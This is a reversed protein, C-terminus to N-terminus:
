DGNVFQRPNISMVTCILAGTVATGNSTQGVIAWDASSSGTNVSVTPGQDVAFWVLLLQGASHTPLTIAHTTTNTAATRNNSRASVSPFAM